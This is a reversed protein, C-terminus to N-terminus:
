ALARPCEIYIFSYWRLFHVPLVARSQIILIFCTDHALMMAKIYDFIFIFSIFDSNNSFHVYFHTEYVYASKTYPPHKVVIEM